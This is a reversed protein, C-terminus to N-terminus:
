DKFTGLVRAVHKVQIDALYLAWWGRRCLVTNKPGGFLWATMKLGQPPNVDLDDWRFVKPEVVWYVNGGRKNEAVYKAAEFVENIPAHLSVFSLVRYWAQFVINDLPLVWKMFEEAM